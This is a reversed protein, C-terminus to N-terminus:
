ATYAIPFIVMLGMLALAPSIWRLPFLDGRLNIVDVILTIIGIAIALEWVGDTAFAFILFLAMADVIALALYTM